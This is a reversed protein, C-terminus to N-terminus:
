ATEPAQQTDAARGRAFRKRMQGVLLVMGLGLIGASAPEPVYTAVYELTIDAGAPGDMRLAFAKVSSLSVSGGITSFGAWPFLVDYPSNSGDVAV